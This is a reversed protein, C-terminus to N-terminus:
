RSSGTASAKSRAREALRSGPLLMMSVCTVNTRARGSASPHSPQQVPLDGPNAGKLIKDIFLGERRFVDYYNTTYTILGGAVVHEHYSYM